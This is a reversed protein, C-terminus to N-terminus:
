PPTCGPIKGDVIQHGFHVCHQMAEDRTEFTDAASFPMTNVKGGEHREIVINLTWRSSDALQRPEAEIIYGKYAVRSM